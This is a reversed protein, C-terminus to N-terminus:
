DRPEKPDYGRRTLETDVPGMGYYYSDGMLQEIRGRSPDPKVLSDHVWELINRIITLRDYLVMDSGVPGAYGLDTANKAIDALAKVAKRHEVRIVKPSLM